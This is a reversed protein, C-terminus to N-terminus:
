LGTVRDAPSTLGPNAGFYAVLNALDENGGLLNTGALFATFSDGGNSLFNITGVRYTAALDIPTGNLTMSGPVVRSGAPKTADWGYSFGKSVGSRLRTM